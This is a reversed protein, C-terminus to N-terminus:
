ITAYESNVSFFFVDCRNRQRMPEHDMIAEFNPSYCVVHMHTYIYIVAYIYIYIGKSGEAAFM